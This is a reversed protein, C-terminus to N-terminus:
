GVPVAPEPTPSGLGALRRAPKPPWWGARDPAGDLVGGAPDDVGDRRVVDLEPHLVERVVLAALGVLVADRLLVSGFFWSFPLGQGAKDVGILYYFVGVFELVETVQWALFARWRPRALVALPLLWLSYQPSYVKNTLLFVVLTLFMVQAVRPRRRCRLALVAVGVLGVVLTMTVLANLRTPSAGPATAADLARGRVHEVAYWLSGWDVGRTRSFVFFRAFGSPAAVWVPVDVVLWAVVAAALSIAWPRLRGARLCLLFLPLLLLAPYLKTATGLGLFVGAWAPRRRAWALMALGTLAGAALDWNITGELVLVPALAVMAADWPRRRGALRSTTLALAVACLALIAATLDYFARARLPPPLVRVADAGVAMLGGILVPYEVPHDLYPREGKDLGEAYYLAFVDTYCLRTYQYEQTWPHVRCTSKQWWGLSCTLVTLLVLIRVPTWRGNGGLRAHRGVPGGVMTSLGRVVPDDLSPPVLAEGTARTTM